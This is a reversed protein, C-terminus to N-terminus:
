ENWGTYRHFKKVCIEKIVAPMFSYYRGLSKQKESSIKGTQQYENLANCVLSVCVETNIQRLHKMGMGKKIPLPLIGVIEGADLRPAVVHLTTVLEEFENHYVAWLHTDLGRYKQPDGGHLNLLFGPCKEIFEASIKGTGFVVTVDPKIEKILNVSDDENVSNFRYVSDCFEETEPIKGKFWDELEYEDREKEVPHSTDFPAKNNSDELFVACIEFKSRLKKLFYLHHLTETTLIALKM